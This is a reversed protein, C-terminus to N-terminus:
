LVGRLQELLKYALEVRPVATRSKGRVSTELIVYLLNAEVATLSLQIPEKISPHIGNLALERSVDTVTSM